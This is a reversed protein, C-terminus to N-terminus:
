AAMGKPRAADVAASLTRADAMPLPLYRAAMAAALDRAEPRPRPAIDVVVAPLGASAIASAAKHADAKAQARGPSGDAAVNASGDTLFVLFPTSGKAAVSEGLQRAATLGTALPTGGGGPLGALARRARTLSRTPPLLMEAGNGRFAILAVESRTVYAQALLMEVAGKAEALRAMAASGSADVAFITVSTSREEFRRVRLDSKRVLVGERPESLERQRLAQWPVAARLTDVLALRAGGRPMGPRAGLPKGRLKSQAKRGGGGGASRRTKGSALMALVGPPIAALAAELVMDEPPQGSTQQEGAAEDPSPAEQAPPAEPEAEPLRTARPALVLRAAAHLDEDAVKGRGHLAAHARAANHAFLPARMTDVGLAMATVALTELQDRSAPRVETFPLLVDEGPSPPDLPRITSLDVHLATRERLSDPAREDPTTGDDLLVLGFGGDDGDIAQAIKGAVDDRLREAMPVLLVGGRAERLLGSQRVSEGATLSAAIDIGGMLREDDINAPLRRFARDPMAKGMADLLLDRAPGAGRLTIGGLQRPALAFLRVALLADALPDM